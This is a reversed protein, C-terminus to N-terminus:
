SLVLGLWKDEWFTVEQGAGVEFRLNERFSGANRRAAKWLTSIGRRLRRGNLKGIKARKFYRMRVINSWIGEKDSVLKWPWKSLLAKNFDRLGLVGLDGQEKLPCINSWKTLSLRREGDRQGNFFSRQIRKM